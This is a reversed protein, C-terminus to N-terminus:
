GDVCGLVVHFTVYLKTAGTKKRTAMQISGEQDHCAFHLKDVIKVWGYVHTNAFKYQYKPADLILACLEKSIQLLHM